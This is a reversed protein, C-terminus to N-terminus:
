ESKRASSVGLGDHRSDDWYHNVKLGDSAFRGVYVRNGDSGVSSTRAYIGSMLYVDRVEKYTTLAWCFGAANPVQELDSLLPVQEKWKKSTSNPVISKRIMLWTAVGTTEERAFAQEAYWGGEKSYFLTRNLDRVGLLSIAQPPNPLLLYNNGRCWAVVELPPLNTQLAELQEDTYALGRARAVEEPTIFDDGLILRTLDHESPKPDITGASNVKPCGLNLYEALNSRKTVNQMPPTFASFPAGATEMVRFFKAATHLVASPGPHAISESM